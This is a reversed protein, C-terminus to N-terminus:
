IPFVACLLAYMLPITIVCLTHSVMAMSAGTKPSGGFAEPFVVTNLGLPAGVAFFALRLVFNDINLGFSLNILEKAGYICTIMVIPIIILRFASAVYVKINKLMPLFDYKAITLGAILMAVPGMCAKLNNVTNGFFNHNEMPGMLFEGMGLLGVVIGVLLAVMPANILSKLPSKGQRNEKPVLINIGWSYIVVSIPLCFLKYYALGVDGVLAQALPDGVYGSNGFALAYKYVNREYTNQKVFFKALSIAIILAIVVGFSSLAVNTIHGGINDVTCFFSMTYFSLAPCFVWTEIKALVTSANEPLIKLKGLLFGIAICTFLMLMPNLTALFTTIM